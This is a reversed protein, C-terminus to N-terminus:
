PQPLIFRKYQRLFWYCLSPMSSITPTLLLSAWTGLHHHAYGLRRHVQRFYLYRPVVGLKKAEGLEFAPIWPGCKSFYEWWCYIYYYILFFCHVYSIKDFRYIFTSLELCLKKLTIQTSMGPSSVRHIPIFEPPFLTSICTTIAHCCTFGVM